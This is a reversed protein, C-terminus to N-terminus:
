RALAPASFASRGAPNVARLWYISGPPGSRDVFRTLRTSKLRTRKSSPSGGRWVEYTVAGWEYSWSLVLGSGARTVSPAGPIGPRLKMGQQPVVYSPARPYSYTSTTFLDRAGSGGADVVTFVNDVTRGYGTALSRFSGRGDNLYVPPTDKAGDVLQGFIDKTGDGNLDLLQLYKLETPENSDSQPLRAATEDRFTGDGNNILIQIWRGAGYPEMKTYAFLLDPKGDRNLEAARVDM